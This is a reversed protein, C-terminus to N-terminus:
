KSKIVDLPSVSNMASRWAQVATEIDAVPSGSHQETTHSWKPYYKGDNGMYIEVWVELPENGAEILFGTIKTIFTSEAILAM